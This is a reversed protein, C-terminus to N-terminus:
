KKLLNLKIMESKSILHRGGPGRITQIKGAKVWNLFTQYTVGLLEIFVKPKIFEENLEM